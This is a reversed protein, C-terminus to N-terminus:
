SIVDVYRFCAHHGDAGLLDYGKVRIIKNFYSSVVPRKRYVYIGAHMRQSNSGKQRTFPGTRSDSHVRYGRFYNKATGGATYLPSQRQDTVIKWFIRDGNKIQRRVADTSRKTANFCM